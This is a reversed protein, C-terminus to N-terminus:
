FTLVHYIFAVCTLRALNMNLSEAGNQVPDKTPKKFEFPVPCATASNKPFQIQDDQNKNSITQIPIERVKVDLGKFQPKIRVTYKTDSQLDTVQYTIQLDHTKKVTEEKFCCTTNGRCVKIRYEDICTVDKWTAWRITVSNSGPIPILGLKSGIDVGPKTSFEKESEESFADGFYSNLRAVYTTCPKLSSITKTTQDGLREPGTPNDNGSEEYTIDYGDACDVKKWKIDASDTSVDAQINEPAKPIYGSNSLANGTLPPLEKELSTENKNIDKKLYKVRFSYKLCPKTEVTWKFFKGESKYKDNLVKWPKSGEKMELKASRLEYCTRDKFIGITDWTIAAKSKTTRRTVRQVDPINKGPNIGQNQNCLSANVAFSSCVVVILLTTILSLLPVKTPRRTVSSM